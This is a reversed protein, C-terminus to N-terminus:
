GCSKRAITGVYVPFEWIKLNWTDVLPIHGLMVDPPVWENRPMAISNVPSVM